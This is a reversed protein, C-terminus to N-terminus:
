ALKNEKEEIYQLINKVIKIVSENKYRLVDEKNIQKTQIIEYELKEEDIVKKIGEHVGIAGNEDQYRGVQEYKHNRVLLFNLNEYQNFKERVAEKFKNRLNKGYYLSMILPCDTIVIDVKGVLRQQRKNQEKLILRQDKLKKYEEDWVLEKPYETVLECNIGLEKLTGFVGAAITSKGTGPGGILNVVTCNKMPILSEKVKDHDRQQEKKKKIYVEM